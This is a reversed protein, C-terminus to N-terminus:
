ILLLIINRKSLYCYYGLRHISIHKCKNVNEPTEGRNGKLLVDLSWM